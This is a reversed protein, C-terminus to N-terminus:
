PAPTDGESPEQPEPPKGGIPSLRFGNTDGVRYGPEIPKPSPTPSAAERPTVTALGGPGAVAGPAAPRPIGAQELRKLAARAHVSEPGSPYKHLMEAYAAAAGTRDGSRELLRALRLLTMENDPANPEADAVRRYMSAAYAYSGEAELRSGLRLMWGVPMRGFTDPIGLVIAALEEAPAQELLLSSHRQIASLCLGYANGSYHTAAKKCFALIVDPNDQAGEMLTELESMSMSLLHGRADSRVAQVDSYDESDRRVRLAMMLLFGAVAGGIHVFHAVGDLGQLLLGWLVDFFLFYLIVWRAQIDSVGLRPIFGFSWMWFTCIRAFPFIYLYAGAIGMIAGSAGLSPMKPHLFGVMYDHLFDGAIGAAFYTLLFKWPGLRGEVASGFLWLFLMNGILHLPNAHLFMATFLRLLNMNEHTVAFREIASDRVYILYVTTPIYFLVNLAILSLTAYPRREPPNKARYPILLAIEKPCSIAGIYRASV